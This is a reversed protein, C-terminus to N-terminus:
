RGRSIGHFGLHRSGGGGAFRVFQDAGVRERASRLRAVVAGRREATETKRCARSHRLAQLFLACLAGAQESAQGESNGGKEEQEPTGVRVIMGPLLHRISPPSQVFGSCPASRAPVKRSPEAPIPLRSPLVVPVAERSGTGNVRTAIRSENQRGRWSVLRITEM